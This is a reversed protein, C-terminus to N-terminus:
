TLELQKPVWIIKGNNIVCIASIFVSVVYTEEGKETRGGKQKYKFM